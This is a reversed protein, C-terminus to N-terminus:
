GSLTKTGTVNGTPSHISFTATFASVVGLFGIIPGTVTGSGTETFPGPYPGTATGSVSFSFAGTNGCQVSGSQRPASFHEGTLTPPAPATPAAAGAAPLVAGLSLVIAAMLSVVLRRGCEPM